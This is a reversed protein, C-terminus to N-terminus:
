DNDSDRSLQLSFNVPVTEIIPLNNVLSALATIGQLMNFNAASILVPQTSAVILTDADLKSIRVDISLKKSVGHMAVAAPIVVLISSGSGLRKIADGVNATVEISPYIGTEFLLKRMRENRIPVQTDVSDPRITISAKGDRVHGRFENFVHTEAINSNKVTVFNIRSNDTNLTWKELGSTPTTHETQLDIKEAVAFPSFLVLISLAFSNILKM